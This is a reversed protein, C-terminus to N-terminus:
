GGQPLRGSVEWANDIERQTPLCVRLDRAIGLKAKAQRLEDLADMVAGYPADADPRLVVLRSIVRPISDPDISGRLYGSLQALAIPQGDVLYSGDPKVQVFVAEEPRLERYSADEGPMALGLGRTASFAMTLMFYIVLLFTVDAMSGTFIFPDLRKKKLIM